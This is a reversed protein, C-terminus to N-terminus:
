QKNRFATPVVNWARRMTATMHSNSSFGVARAIQDLPTDTGAILHRARQLRSEIVYQHPSQGATQKFARTFHSPSLGATAALDELTISEALNEQVYENVTRWARPTLGGNAAPSTHSKLSSYNRLFEIGLLSALWNLGEKSGSNTNLIEHRMWRAITHAKDDVAGIKPPYLEFTDRDFEVGALHKLRKPSINLRLCHKHTSWKAFMSSKAPIVEASGAPATRTRRSEGNLAIEWRPITAFFIIFTHDSVNKRVFNPGAHICSVSCEHLDVKLGWERPETFM